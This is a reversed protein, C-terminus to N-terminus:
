GITTSTSGSKGIGLIMSLYINYFLLNRKKKVQQINPRQKPDVVLMFQILDKLGQSYSFL